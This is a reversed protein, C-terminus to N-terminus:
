LVSIYRLMFKRNCLLVLRTYYYSIMDACWRRAREVREKDTEKEQTGQDGNKNDKAGEEKLM